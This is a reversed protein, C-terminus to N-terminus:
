ICHGIAVGQVSRAPLASIDMVYFFEKFLTEGGPKVLPRELDSIDLDVTPLRRHPGSEKVGTPLHNAEPIAGLVGVSPEDFVTSPPGVVASERLQTLTHAGSVAGDRQACGPRSWRLEHYSVGGRRGAALSNRGAFGLGTQAVILVVAVISAGVMATGHRYASRDRWAVFVLALSVLPLFEAVIRHATVLSHSGAIIQGALTAQALVGLAILTSGIEIWWLRRSVSSKRHLGQIATSDASPATTTDM